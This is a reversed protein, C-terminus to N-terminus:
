TTSPAIRKIRPPTRHYAEQDEDGEQRRQHDRKVLVLFGGECFAEGEPDRRDEGQKGEGKVEAVGALAEGEFLLERPHRKQARAVVHREIANGKGEHHQGREEGHDAHERAPPLLVPGEEGQEQEQLPREGADEGGEVEQEKEDEELDHQHRHVEHDRDPAVLLAAVRRHLEQEVREHARHQHQGRDEAGRVERAGLEPLEGEVVELELLGHGVEGRERGRGPEKPAEGQRKQDLERAHREM